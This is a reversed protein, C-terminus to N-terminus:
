CMGRDIESKHPYIVEGPVVMFNAAFMAKNQPAYYNTIQEESGLVAIATKMPDIFGIKQLISCMQVVRERATCAYFQYDIFSCGTVFLDAVGLAGIKLHSRNMVKMEPFTNVVVKGHPIIALRKGDQGAISVFHNTAKDGIVGIIKAEQYVPLGRLLRVAQEIGRPCLHSRDMRVLHQYHRSSVGSRSMRM